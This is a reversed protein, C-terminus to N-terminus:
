ILKRWIIKDATEYCTYIKYFKYLRQVDGNKTVHINFPDRKAVKKVLAATVNEYVIKKQAPAANSCTASRSRKADKYPPETFLYMNTKYCFIGCENGLGRKHNDASARHGYRLNCFKGNCLPRNCMESEKPTKLLKSAHYEFTIHGSGMKKFCLYRDIACAAMGLAMGPPTKSRINSADLGQIKTVWGKEIGFFRDPDKTTLYNDLPHEEIANSCGGSFLHTIKDHLDDLQPNELSAFMWPHVQIYAKQFNNYTIVKDMYGKPNEVIVVPVDSTLMKYCCEKIWYEKLELRKHEVGTMGGDRRHNNKHINSNYTCPSHSIIVAPKGYKEIIKKMTAEWDGDEVILHNLGMYQVGEELDQEDFSIVNYKFGNRKAYADWALNPVGSRVFALIILQDKIHARDLHSYM